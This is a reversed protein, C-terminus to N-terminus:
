ALCRRFFALILHRIQALGAESFFHGEGALPVFTVDNGVAQLAQYLLESQGIPVIDDQDGHLILFPPENGRIYSIPNAQRVQDVRSWIPGGLLQAEPSDPQDHFGGMQLFDTPGSLDVVARVASSVGPADDADEWDTVGAATGLLAALHGGSSIGWVGVREPDFGYHAANARVWRVAAQADRIQAPFRAQQSLRHDISVTAFGHRVLFDTLNLKRNAEMWAGGQIFLVVPLPEPPLPEPQLIDLRLTIGAVVRYVIDPHTTIAYTPNDPM